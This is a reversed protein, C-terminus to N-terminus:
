RTDYVLYEGALLNRFHRLFTTPSSKLFREILWAEKTSLMMELLDPRYRVLSGLHFMCCYIAVLENMPALKPTKISDNLVFLEPDEFPFPWMFGKLAHVVDAVIPVPNLSGAATLPYTKKGEYFDSVTQEQSLLGFINKADAETTAVSEFDNDLARKIRSFNAARSGRPVAILPYAFPPGQNHNTAIIFQCPFSSHAGFGLKEFEYGVDSVYSFLSRLKLSADAQLTTGGMILKYFMPFV